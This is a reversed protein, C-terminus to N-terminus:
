KIIKCYNKVERNEIRYIEIKQFKKVNEDIDFGFVDHGFSDIALACPLGLKGLGIFGVKM